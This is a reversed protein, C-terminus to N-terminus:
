LLKFRLGLVGIGETQPDPSGIYNRYLLFSVLNDPNVDFNMILSERIDGPVLNFTSINNDESFIVPPNGLEDNIQATSRISFSTNAGCVYTWVLYVALSGSLQNTTKLNYGIVSADTDPLTIVMRDDITSQTAGFWISITSSPVFNPDQVLDMKLTKSGILWDIFLKFNPGRQMGTIQDFFQKSEDPIILEITNTSPDYKTEFETTDNNNLALRAFLAYLFYDNVKLPAGPIIKPIVKPAAFVKNGRNM